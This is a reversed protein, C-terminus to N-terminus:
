EETLDSSQNERRKYYYFTLVGLIILNFLWYWPCWRSEVCECGLIEHIIQSLAALVLPIIWWASIKKDKLWYYYAFTLLWQAVLPLWWLYHWSTCSVGKVEPEGETVGAVEPEPSPEPEKEETEAAALIGGLFRGPAPFVYSVWSQTGTDDGAGATSSTPSKGGSDDSPKPTPTPLPSSSPCEFGMQVDFKAEKGQYNNDAGTDMECTFEYVKHGGANINSLAQYGSSSLKGSYLNSSAGKEKVYVNIVNGLDGLSSYNNFDVSFPCIEASNNNATIEYVPSTYGPYVNEEDFVPTNLPFITCGSGDCDVTLDAALALSSFSLFIFIFLASIKFIKKM